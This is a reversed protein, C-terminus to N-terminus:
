YLNQKNFINVMSITPHKKNISNPADLIKRFANKTKM